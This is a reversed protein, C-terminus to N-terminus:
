RKLALAWLPCKNSQGLQKQISRNNVKVVIGDTPLFNMYKGDLWDNHYNIVEDYTHAINFPM